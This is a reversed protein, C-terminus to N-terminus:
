HKLGDSFKDRLIPANRDLDANERRNEIVNVDIQAAGMARANEDAKREEEQRRVKREWSKFRATMPQIRRLRDTKRAMAKTTM